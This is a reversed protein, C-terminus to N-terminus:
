LSAPQAIRGAKVAGGQMVVRLNARNELLTIDQLVDGDVVLLDALKGKEVSGLEHARGMMTAGGLTACRLTDLVSFGVYKVFFTLEQAYTGHPTWGFGYDGGLGLTAGARLLRRCSEAGAELTEQHGDIVQQTLGFDRGREVSWLEFGLGPCVPVGRELLLDLCEDDLFSAHELADYGAKLANRIGETARCHGTVKLGHNHATAVVAHMEDFTMCLTHHDNIDPSAADGTPYTKVWEVGDKVLKRVASRAEDPGNVIFVIGEMGIKRYDPNWDMLGGAGCIERGSAALRPGPIMDEEIAKKMWVDINHLCGGSRASTYGCELATKANVASQLTVYEVPYKIDLDQLETVDFYTLHIHAEVLGPLITGGQADIVRADAGTEPAGAATGAYAILGDTVVVCANDVPAAGTGDILRGNRLVTTGPQLKM